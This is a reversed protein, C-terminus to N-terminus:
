VGFFFGFNIPIQFKSEGTSTEVHMLFRKKSLL